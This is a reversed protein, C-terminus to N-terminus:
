ESEATRFGNAIYLLIEWREDESLLDKFAPMSSNMPAGGESVAWFNYADLNVGGMAQDHTMGPHHHPVGHMLHAIRGPHGTGPMERDYMGALAPPAPDLGAAGEGRGDGALGHCAACNADYLQQGVALTLTTLRLPNLLDKYAEPVGYRKVHEFRSPNHEPGHATAEDQAGALLLVACLLGVLRPSTM